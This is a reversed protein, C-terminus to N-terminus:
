SMSARILEEILVLYCAAFYFKLLTSRQPPQFTRMHFPGRNTVITHLWASKTVLIM